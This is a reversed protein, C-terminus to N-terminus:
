QEHEHEDYPISKSEHLINQNLHSRIKCNHFYFDRMDAFISYVHVCM